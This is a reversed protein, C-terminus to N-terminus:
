SNERKASFKILVIDDSSNQRNSPHYRIASVKVDVVVASSVVSVGPVFLLLM